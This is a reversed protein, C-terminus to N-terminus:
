GPPEVPCGRVTGGRMGDAIWLISPLLPAAALAPLELGGSPFPTRAGTAGVLSLLVVLM